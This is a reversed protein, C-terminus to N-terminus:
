DLVNVKEEKECDRTQGQCHYGRKTMISTGTSMCDVCYNDRLERGNWESVREKAMFQMFQMWFQAM